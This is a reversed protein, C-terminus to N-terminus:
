MITSNILRHLENIIDTNGRMTVYEDIVDAMKVARTDDGDAIYSCVCKIMGNLITDSTNGVKAVLEDIM